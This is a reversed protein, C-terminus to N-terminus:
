FNLKTYKAQLAVPLLIQIKCFILDTEYNIHVKLIKVSKYGSRFARLLRECAYIIMPIALYMWTQTLSNQLVLNLYLEFWTVLLAILKILLIPSQQMGNEQVM